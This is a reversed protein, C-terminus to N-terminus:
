KSLHFIGTKTTFKIHNGTKTVHIIEKSALIFMNVVFSPIGIATLYEPYNQDYSTLLYEGSILDEDGSASASQTLMLETEEANESSAAGTMRSKLYLYGGLLVGGFLLLIVATVIACCKWSTKCCCCKRGCCGSTDQEYDKQSNKYQVAPTPNQIFVEKEYGNLDNKKEM